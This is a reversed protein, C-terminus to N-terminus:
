VLELLRPLPEPAGLDDCWAEVSYGGGRECADRIADTARPNRYWDEDWRERLAAWLRLGGLVARLRPVSSGQFAVTAFGPPVPVGLARGAAQACRVTLEEPSKSLAQASVAACCWRSELLLWLGVRRRVDAAELRALGEDRLQRTEAFVQAGLDGIARAVSGVSAHRLPVPLPAVLARALSRGVARAAALESQWGLELRSPVIRIDRGADLVWVRAGPHGDGHPPEVRVARALERELGLPAWRAGARRFRDRSRFGGDGPPWRLSRFLEPLSEAHVLDAVITDTEALWAEAQRLRDAAAPGADAHPPQGLRVWLAEAQELADCRRRSLDPLLRRVASEVSRVLAVARGGDARWIEELADGLRVVDRGVPLPAARIQTLTQRAPEIRRELEARVLHAAAAPAEGPLMDEAAELLALPECPWAVPTPEDGRVRDIARQALTARWRAIATRVTHVSEMPGNHRGVPLRAIWVRM